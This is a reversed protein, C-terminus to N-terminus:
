VTALQQFSKLENSIGNIFIPRETAAWWQQIFLLFGDCMLLYRILSFRQLRSSINKMEKRKKLDFALFLVKKYATYLFYKSKEIQPRARLDRVADCCYTKGRVGWLHLRHRSIAHYFCFFNHSANAVLGNSYVYYTQIIYVIKYVFLPIRIQASAIIQNHNGRQNRFDRIIHIAIEVWLSTFKFGKDAKSQPM